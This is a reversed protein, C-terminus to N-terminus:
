QVVFNITATAVEVGDADLSDYATIKLKYSSGKQVFSPRGSLTLTTESSGGVSVNSLGFTSDNDIPNQRTIGDITWGLTTGLFLSGFVVPRNNQTFEMKVLPVKSPVNSRIYIPVSITDYGSAKVAVPASPVEISIQPLAPTTPGSVGTTSTGGGVTTPTTTSAYPNVKSMVEVEALELPHYYTTGGSTYTKKQKEIKVYRGMKGVPVVAPQGGAAGNVWTGAAYTVDNESTLVRFTGLTNADTKGDEVMKWIRVEDILLPKELDVKWWPNTRETKSTESGPSYKDGRTNGDVANGQNSVGTPSSQFTPQRIAVNRPQVQSNTLDGQASNFQNNLDNSAASTTKNVLANIDQIAPDGAGSLLAASDDYSLVRYSEIPSQAGMTGTTEGYYQAQYRKIYSGSTSNKKSSGLLGGAAQITTKVVQNLVAGIVQDIEQAVAMQIEGQGLVSDLKAAITRGPTTTTKKLCQPDISQNSGQITSTKKEYKDGVLVDSTVETSFTGGATGQGISNRTVGALRQNVQETSEHQTCTETDLFGGSFEIKKAKESVRSLARQALESDAILYAGYVNNNPQTTVQLWNDWGAGGNNNIFNSANDGIKSLTCSVERRFPKSYKLALAIRIQFSFDSCLWGLESGEILQGVAQDAADLLTGGFDTVFSPSGEFGGNVWEVISSGVTRILAIVIMTGLPKLVCNNFSLANASGSVVGGTVQKGINAVPIGMVEQVAGLAASTTGLAYGVICSSASAQAEAREPLLLIINSGILSLIIFPSAIRFFIKKM